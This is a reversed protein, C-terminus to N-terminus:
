NGDTCTNSTSSEFKSLDINGEEVGVGTLCTSYMEVNIGLIQCARNWRRLLVNDRGHNM